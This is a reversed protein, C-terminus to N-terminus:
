RNPLGRAARAARIDDAEAEISAIFRIFGAREASHLDAFEARPVAPDPQESDFTLVARLKVLLADIDGFAWENVLPGFGSHLSGFLAADQDPPLDPYAQLYRRWRLQGLYFLFTSEASAGAEWQSLAEKWLALPHDELHRAALAKAADLASTQASAPVALAMVALGLAAVYTVTGRGAGHEPESM